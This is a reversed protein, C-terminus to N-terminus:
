GLGPPINERAKALREMVLRRAFYIDTGEEFYV